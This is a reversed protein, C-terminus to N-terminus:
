ASMFKESLFRQTEQYTLEPYEIENIWDIRRYSDWTKLWDPHDPQKVLYNFPFQHTVELKKNNLLVNSTIQRLFLYQKEEDAALFRNTAETCLLFFNSAKKEWDLNNQELKAKTEFLNKREQEKKAKYEEYVEQPNKDAIPVIQGSIRMEFLNKLETEIQGIRRNMSDLLEEREKTNQAYERNMEEFLFEALEKEIDIPRVAKEAFEQVLEERNITPQTCRHWGGPLSKTCHYMIYEADRNRYHKIKLEATIHTVKCDHCYMPLKKFLFRDKLDKTTHVHNKEHSRNRARQIELYDFLPPHKANTYRKGRWKFEGLYFDNFIISRLEEASVKGQNKGRLGENFFLDSIEEYSMGQNYLKPLRRVYPAKEEDVQIIRDPKEEAGINVNKYGLPAWSPYWGREAKEDLARMSKRRTMKSLFGNVAALLEGIMEGEETDNVMPQTVAFVKVGFKKLAARIPIYADNGRALRDTETVM